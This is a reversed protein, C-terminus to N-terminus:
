TSGDQIELKAAYAWLENSRPLGVHNGGAVASAARHAEDIPEM